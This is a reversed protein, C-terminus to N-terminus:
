NELRVLGRLMNIGKHKRFDEWVDGKKKLRKLITKITFDSPKLDTTLEKWELPASVPAGPVPRVGYPAAITQGERNQLYDVYIKTQRKKPDRTISTIDPLQEFVKTAIIQGFQRTQEYTYQYSSDLPILIHLGTKGSTKIFCEIEAKDLIDKTVKATRIVEKFPQGEPDLDIICYDPHEPTKYRSNWPNIEICGLNALYILTDKDNCLIWNISGKNHESYLPITKVWDPKHIVDKQFFSEGEIGDPFRNMSIPRDKLYPLIYESVADYYDILDGKTYGEAPWYVKNTNSIEVKGRMTPSEKALIFRRPSPNPDEDPHRSPSQRAESAIVSATIEEPKKDARIRVFVPHRMMGDNTWHSFKVECVILPKIWTAPTNTEPEITFPSKKIVLPKLLKHVKNLLAEDFGGGAHGVFRLENNDYVGLVLSGFKERSGKPETFGCIIADATQVHKIKLWDSSRRFVYSSNKKKAMVGEFGRKQAIDYLQLGHEDIHDSYKLIDSEPLIDKLIKKREILPLSTLDYGDVHLIDFVYYSLRGRKFRGYDQLLQFQPRGTDDLVVVEGDLLMDYKLRELADVVIPYRDNFNLNNRSYLRVKGKQVEGVARYGDWKIEYVWDKNDFPAEVPEALMPKIEHPMPSKKGVTHIHTLLKEEEELKQKEFKIREKLTNGKGDGVEEVRLGTKVSTNQDTVDEESAYQDNHKILM